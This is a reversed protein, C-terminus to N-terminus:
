YKLRSVGGDKTFNILNYLVLVDDFNNERIYSNVSPMFSRLDIVHVEEYNQTLFPVLSNAYSDKFVVIKKGNKLEKNKIITLPNNGYLFVGYKDRESLKELDYLSSYIDEGIKMEVNSIDYYTLIDGEQKYPKAKSFYTGYFDLTENKKLKGLSIPAKGLSNMLEKYAIYAGKTTWHHDTKYYLEKDDEKFTELLNIKRADEINEYIFALLEEQPVNPSGKPLLSKYVGYSNPAIIISVKDKHNEILTNLADINTKLRKEDIETFKEFLFGEKGYIIENNEIKMLASESRSKLNIWNDRMIFQDNIYGEYNNQFSGNFYDKLTFDVRGKLRRNELSSFSKIPSLIDLITIIAIVGFFVISLLYKKM